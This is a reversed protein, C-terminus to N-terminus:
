QWADVKKHFEQRDSERQAPFKRGCILCVRLLEGKFQMDIKQGGCLICRDHTRRDETM